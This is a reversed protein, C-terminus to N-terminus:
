AQLISNGCIASFLRMRMQDSHFWCLEARRRWCTRDEAHEQLCIAIRLCAKMQQKQINKKWQLSRPRHFHSTVVAALTSAAVTVPWPVAKQRPSIHGKWACIAATFSFTDPLRQQARGSCFMQAAVLMRHISTHSPSASFGM